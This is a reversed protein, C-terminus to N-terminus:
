IPVELDSSLDSYDRNKKQIWPNITEPDYLDIGAEKFQIKDMYDSQIRVVQYLIPIIKAGLPSYSSEPIIIESLVQTLSTLAAYEKRIDTTSAKNINRLHDEIRELIVQHAERKGLKTDTYSNIDQM